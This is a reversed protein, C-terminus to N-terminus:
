LTIEAFNRTQHAIACQCSKTGTYVTQMLINMSHSYVGCKTGRVVRVGM